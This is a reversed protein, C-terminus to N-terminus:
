TPGGGGFFVKAAMTRRHTQASWLTGDRSACLDMPTGSFAPALGRFEFGTISDPLHRQALGILLTAQLPGHVVLGPYGEQHTAYPQDYHIRHGNLTLASYRFLLVPDPSVRERWDADGATEVPPASAEAAPPDRYVIDQEERIALGDEGHIEHLV